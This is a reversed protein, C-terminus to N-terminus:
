FNERQKLPLVRSSPSPTPISNTFSLHFILELSCLLSLVGVALLTRKEGWWNEKFLFSTVFTPIFNSLLLGNQKDASLIFASFIFNTNSDTKFHIFWM